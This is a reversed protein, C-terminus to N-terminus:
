PFMVLIRKLLYAVVQILLMLVVPSFDLMGMQPVVRRVPALMPEVLRDVWLRVKHFPSLFYSLIVHALVLLLLFTAALDVLNILLVIM